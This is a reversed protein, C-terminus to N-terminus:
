QQKTILQNLERVFADSFGAEQISVIAEQAQSLSEFEGTVYKYFGDDGLIERVGEIERFLEMSVPSKTAMMQITYVRKGTALTVVPESKTLARSKDNLDYQNIIYAETFGKEKVYGLYNIADPRNYFLGLSYISVSDTEMPRLFLMGSMDLDSFYEIPLRDKTEKLVISYKVSSPLRLHEPTYTEQRLVIGTQPDVIGFTVRRNYKRGEPNDSGDPNNNVAAFASEGFAKKIFRSSPNIPSVMHDIVAQARKDALKLNYERSGKSDTYGAVEIKLDPHTILVPKIEDIARHAQENLEYSDFDFLITKMTMFNGRAVEAPILESNVAMYRSLFYLPLHINVTDTKYGPYTALLYYDGPKIEFRFKGGENVKINDLLTGKNADILKLAAKDPELTYSNSLTIIGETTTIEDAPDVAVVKYINRSSTKEDYLSTIFGPANNNLIFFTNPLTTNFAFPMGVPNSWGGNRSISRFVDYGGMSIHGSSSFILARSDPDFFPTDENYPTNIINGCNVPDDWTGDKNESVWIDLDGSGGPRNSAIYLTNGDPTIFGHSEWYISNIKKGVSKIKSWTDGNRQSYYLNGDGGDDLFLILLKGDGTISNSYFRTYGGLQQTIDVPISWTDNRYSCLIRTHDEIKQTFIFVSDNKSLVPNCAGPYDDLWPEFLTSIITLPKKKMELAYRCDRIQNDIYDERFIDKNSYRKKVNNFVSIAKELSDNTHYAIALYLYTDLPAQEGYEIYDRDKKVVNSSASKLLRLAEHYRGDINLYCIGLKAAFNANDPYAKNLTEYIKAAKEYNEDYYFFIDANQVTRIIDKRTLEQSILTNFYSTLLVILIVGSLPRNM